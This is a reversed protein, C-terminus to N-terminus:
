PLAGYVVPGRSLTWTKQPCGPLGRRTRCPLRSRILSRALCGPRTSGRVALSSEACSAREICSPMASFFPPLRRCCCSDAPVTLPSVLILLIPLPYQGQRLSFCEGCRVWPNPGLVGRLSLAGSGHRLAPDNGPWSPGGGKERDVVWSWGRLSESEPTKQTHTDAVEQWDGATTLRVTTRQYRRNGSQGIARQRGARRDAQLARRHGHEINGTAQGRAAPYVAGAM